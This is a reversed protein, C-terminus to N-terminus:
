LGKVDGQRLAHRIYAIKSDEVLPYGGANDVAEFQGVRGEVRTLYQNEVAPYRFPRSESVGGTEDLIMWLVGRVRRGTSHDRCLRYLAPVVSKLFWNMTNSEKSVKTPRNSAGSAMFDRFPILARWRRVEDPLWLWEGRLWSHLSGDAQFSLWVQNANEKRYEPEFRLFREGVDNLKIYWRHMKGSKRSGIYVTSMDDEGDIMKVGPSSGVKDWDAKRLRDVFNRGRYWQHQKLTVQIDLRTCKGFGVLPQYLLDALEGEIDLRWHDRGNQFGRGLFASGIDTVYRHGSYGRVTEHRPEDDTPSLNQARFFREAVDPDFTTLTLWDLAASNVIM